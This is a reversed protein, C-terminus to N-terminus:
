LIVYLFTTLRVLLNVVRFYIKLLINFIRDGALEYRSFIGKTRKKCKHVKM